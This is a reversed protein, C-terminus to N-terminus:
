LQFVLHNVSVGLCIADGTRWLSFTLVPALGFPILLVPASENKGKEKPPPTIKPRPGSFLQCAVDNLQLSLAIFFGKSKGNLTLQVLSPAM